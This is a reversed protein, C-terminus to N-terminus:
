PKVTTLISVEPVWVDFVYPLWNVVQLKMEELMEM